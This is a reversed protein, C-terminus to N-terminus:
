CKNEYMLTKNQEELELKEYDNLINNKFSFSLGLTQNDTDESLDRLRKEEKLQSKLEQNKALLKENIHELTEREYDIKNVVKEMDFLKTKLETNRTTLDENIFKLEEVEAKFDLHDDNEKVDVCRTEETQTEINHKRIVTNALLSTQVNAIFSQRRHKSSKLNELKM